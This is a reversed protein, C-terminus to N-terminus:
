SPDDPCPPSPVAPAPPAEPGAHTPTAGPRARRAVPPKKKRPIFLDVIGILVCVAGLGQITGGILLMAPGEASRSQGVGLLFVLLAMFFLAGRAVRRRIEFASILGGVFIVGAFVLIGTSARSRPNPTGPPPQRPPLAWRWEGSFSAVTRALLTQATEAELPPAGVIVQVANDRIPVQAMAVFRAGDPMALTFRVSNVSLEGWPLAAIEFNTANPLLRRFEDLHDPRFRERPLEAGLSQLAISISADPDTESRHEFMADVGPELLEDAARRWGAPIEVTYRGDPSTYTTQAAAPQPPILTAIATAVLFIISIRM